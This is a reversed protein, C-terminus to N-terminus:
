WQTSWRIVTELYQLHERDTQIQMSIFMRNFEVFCNILQHLYVSILHLKVQIKARQTSYAAFIESQDFAFAIIRIQCNVALM